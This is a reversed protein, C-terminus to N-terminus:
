ERSTVGRKGKNWPIKGLSPSKHTKLWRKRALSMKEKAKQSHKKGKMGFSSKKHYIKIDIKQNTM